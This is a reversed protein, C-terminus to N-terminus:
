RGADAPYLAYVRAPNPATKFIPMREGSKTRGEVYYEVGPPAMRKAPITARWLDGYQPQLNLEVYDEGPGRYLLVISAFKECNALTGEVELAQDPKAFQPASHQFEPKKPDGGLLVLLAFLSRVDRIM